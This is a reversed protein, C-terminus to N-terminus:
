APRPRSSQPVARGDVKGSRVMDLYSALRTLGHGQLGDAEAAVLARAVSRANAGSAGARAFVETVRAELEALSLTLKSM